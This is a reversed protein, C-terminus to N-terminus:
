TAIGTVKSPRAAVAKELVEIAANIWAMDGYDVAVHVSYCRADPHANRGAEYRQRIARLVLSARQVSSQSEPSHTENRKAAHRAERRQATAPAAGERTQLAGKMATIAHRESESIPWCVNCVICYANVSRGTNLLVFLARRTYGHQSREHGCRPCRSVFAIKPRNWARPNSPGRTRTRSVSTLSNTKTTM